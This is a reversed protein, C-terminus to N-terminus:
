PRQGRLPDHSATIQRFTENFQEQTIQPVNELLKDLRIAAVQLDEDTMDEIREPLTRGDDKM